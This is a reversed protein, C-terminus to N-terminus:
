EDSESGNPIEGSAILKETAKLWKTYRRKSSAIAAESLEPPLEPLHQMMGIYMRDLMATVVQMQDFLGSIREEIGQITIGIREETRALLTHIIQGTQEDGLKGTDTMATALEKRLNLYELLCNRVTRSVSLGRAAAEQEVKKFDGPKVYARLEHQKLKVMEM